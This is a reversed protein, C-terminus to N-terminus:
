PTPVEVFIVFTHAPKTAEIICTLVDLNWDRLPEGATSNGARFYTYVLAPEYHVSWVFWWDRARPDDQVWQDVNVCPSQHFCADGAASVGAIMPRYETITITYGYLAALDIYYQRDQGGRMALKALVANRRDQLMRLPGTCPDPLGCIREWDSITEICTGPYSEALLDCDRQHLRAYEVALGGITRQLDTDPDRPWVMGSPLLDAMTNAFDQPTYGCIAQSEPPLSDPV